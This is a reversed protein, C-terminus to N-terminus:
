VPADRGFGDALMEDADQARQGSVSSGLAVFSLRCRVEATREAPLTAALEEVVADMSLHRREAEARLRALMDESLDITVPM